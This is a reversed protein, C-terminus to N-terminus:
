QKVATFVGEVGAVAITGKIGGDEGLPGTFVLHYAKDATDFEFSVTKEKVSGTVPVDKGGELTATGSLTEGDQKLVCTLKVANGYVDGDVKWTGAVDAVAALAATTALAIACVVLLVLKM